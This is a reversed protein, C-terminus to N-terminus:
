RCVTSTTSPDQTVPTQFLQKLQDFTPRLATSTSWTKKIISWYQTGCDAPQQLTNRTNIRRVLEDDDPIEGWPIAGRSYAEWMLVGFAYVDSKETYDVPKVYRSLVEPASYRPRNITRTTRSAVPVHNYIPAQPNLGYNTVKVVIKHPDTEDFRFVLVNDSVLDGHVVHKSALYTMADIIQLFIEILVNEPPPTKRESILEYLSGESADEQLLLISNQEDDHRVFGFTRIIHSHRSLNVYFSAEKQARVGDIKLLVVDARHDTNPLWEARYLTKDFTQFLPRGKKKKVDVDLTYQYTKEPLTNEFRDVLKKIPENPYFNGLAIPQNTIPSTGNRKIWAEIATREYTYGDEALVPDNFLSLTIPCVLIDKPRNM